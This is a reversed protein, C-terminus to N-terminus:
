ENELEITPASYYDVEADGPHKYVEYQRDTVEVTRADDPVEAGNIIWKAYALGAAERSSSAEVFYSRTETIREVITVIHTTKHAM